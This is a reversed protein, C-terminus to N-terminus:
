PCGGTTRRDEQADCMAITITIGSDIRLRTAIGISHDRETM